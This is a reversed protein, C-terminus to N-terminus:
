LRVLKSYERSLESYFLMVMFRLKDYLKRYGITMKESGNHDDLGSSSGVRILALCLLRAPLPAAEEAVTGM